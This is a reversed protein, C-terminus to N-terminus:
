RYAAEVSVEVSHVATSEGMDSKRGPNLANVNAYAADQTLWRGKHAVAVGPPVDDSLVVTLELRGCRNRVLALDGERLSREAADAPHLLITAQGLRLTIRQVNGFTTNLLWAHAPSLLRLNGAAPRPDCWCQPLRPLGHAAARDSAIEIRGSETDFVRHAFQPLPDKPVWIMGKAKLTEFSEGLGSRSMLSQLIQTDTEHFETEGFGMARGLRRFIELNPLAEGIPEMVKSQAALSFNFYPAVIDDFELFSAAPLVYDALATSDTPFLDVAVTLLDDRELAGRLRAQNPCSGLPNMNWVFLARSRQRDELVGALDMHSVAPPAPVLGLHAGSLYGEDMGRQSLNGNLYLFGAGPKCLNGTLAPLMACARMVNGGTVQRQLGQGLWLLSPGPAYLHAAKEILRVPVGTAEALRGLDCAAVFSELEEWGQVHRSVFAEDILGDRHIVSLLAFALAADSGPFPQLHIDAEAATPTRIPDVVIVKGPAEPLWHEHAHPASAHPNAGWVLICAADKSTRPDFGDLSTGYMYRLAVHGAMNCITDPTVETAGLRNFFRMPAIGALLSITGTYHANLISRAGHSDVISALRGAIEGIATDWSVPEFDAFDHPARAGQGHAKPRVRKLPQTLRRSPDRWERNYATSCKGCLAGRSVPHDPDGRVASVLGARKVVLIGCSDYCDRPCTTTLTEENPASETM